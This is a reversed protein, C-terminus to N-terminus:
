ELKTSFVPYLSPNNAGTYSSRLFGAGERERYFLCVFSPLFFIHMKNRCSIKKKASKGPFFRPLCIKLPKSKNAKAKTPAATSM